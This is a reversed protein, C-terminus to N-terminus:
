FMGWPHLSPFVNIHTNTDSIAKAELWAVVGPWGTVKAMAVAM